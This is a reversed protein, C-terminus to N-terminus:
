EKFTDLKGDIMNIECGHEDEWPAYFYMKVERNTDGYIAVSNLDSKAFADERNEVGFYRLNMEQETEDERFEIDLDGYSTVDCSLKCFWYIFDKIHEIDAETLNIFDNIAQVITDNIEGPAKDLPAIYIEVTKDLAKQYVNLTAAKYYDWTCQDLIEQKTMIETKKHTESLDCNRHRRSDLLVYRHLTFLYFVMTSLKYVSEM